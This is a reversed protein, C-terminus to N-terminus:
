VADVIPAHRVLTGGVLGRYVSAPINKHDPHGGHLPCTSTAASLEVDVDADADADAVRRGLSVVCEGAM